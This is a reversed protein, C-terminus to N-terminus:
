LGFLVHPRWHKQYFGDSGNCVGCHECSTSGCHELARSVRVVVTKEVLLTELEESRIRRYTIVQYNVTGDSTKKGKLFRELM